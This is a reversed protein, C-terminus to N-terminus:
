FYVGVFVFWDINKYRYKYNLDLFNWVDYGWYSSNKGIVCSWKAKNYIENMRTAVYTARQEFNSSRQYSVVILEQITLKM